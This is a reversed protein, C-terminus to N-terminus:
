IILILMKMICYYKQNFKMFVICYLYKRRSEYFNNRKDQTQSCELKAKYIEEESKSLFLGRSRDFYCKQYGKWGGVSRNKGVNIFYEFIHKDPDAEKNKTWEFYDSSEIFLVVQAENFVADADSVNSATMFGTNAETARNAQHLIVLPRKIIKVLNQLQESIHVIREHKSGKFDDNPKIKNLQDLYVIDPSIGMIDMKLVTLKIDDLTINGKDSMIFNSVMSEDLQETINIRTIFDEGAEECSFVLVRKDDLLQTRIMHSALSTKGFESRAVIFVLRKGFLKINYDLSDFGFKLLTATQEQFKKEEALYKWEPYYKIHTEYNEAEMKLVAERFM